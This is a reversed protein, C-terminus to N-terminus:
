KVVVNEDGLMEKLEAVLADHIVCRAGRRKKTDEFYLVMQENGPFMVLILKIRECAPDNESKLRVYLKRETKQPAPREASHDDDATNDFDTIPRITDVVLQPEKEDRASLRGTVVVPLNDRVYAGGTDLARQFALLEMSGTGDELTIYAMLSNNKTTKTKVASIVGALTVLQDDRFETNGDEQAFDEIIPGIPVAGAKKAAARYHDMPHGSLYLGTVEHEMAMLDQGSFEPIDPLAIKSSHAREGDEQMGFLDLQGEVNKRRSDAISDLVTGCVAMLQSRRAGLSDFGGCKILSEVARRNLDAGHMRTCFDEFDTFRGNAAREEMVNRIFGRGIGKVAVLGYRIDNGSVSFMDDSENVDPPLLRINMERCEETYESVKEPLDLVSSMLAAMYERPYHCKLYATQYTIMAYSVAHAKNFAYNAFDLIEDYISGAVDRPVGNKVAGIIGREPDGDIFAQRERVIEAQKKKSMARRIMDAQGLSFGALRRFIEIVQEQYVICGYTVELIPKLLPHKYTIKSPNKNNELFRPISDIPGPRYLAIIATIDEISKPGLGSCVATIGASELQFVGATKGASLMAYTERDDDPIKRIDFDPERRRIERVADDIVTLNRLGLFDMKLLGLEELTTMVYQTAISDDKKSLTLPVYDCVPRKTIVVGAAHTGSDKPMDELAAATDVVKKIREDGDYMDRLQKSTELAKAITMKLENPVARALENEEAFTLSLVKSVSRIANKAKLTNFTVIQAVHDEGYKRKVYDIVEGRRRECFDMDIDPMSVREPNLFREFYLSYKIPDIDTIGLCYSVVSGAASGRGPGVPIKQSKAFAVFDSVILFYDTFGMREIMELEYELQERVDERGSGYRKEFGALCLKRLYDASNEGDPVTFEPLHYHGFEFELECLDAIRATNDAAEPCDPFLARMDNESKLFFEDTEFRMRDTDEIKKGTQICMLVDQAYADSRKLYHVDNTVVVPIETEEHIRLIGRNVEKQEPIGHDQLELYFGDDGFIESLELAKNKAATYDGASLLRPIEGALCASLCILGESHARLLEMDIRPKIYFGETFARSVLQCLNRYGTENRCLLVMHYRVSDLDHDKDFRSRPAVYVECGIIPKIGAAKAEKYFNVAGYMVGHDTVALATQGLESARRVLERIRCAGDLLSYESHVHLHVFAM